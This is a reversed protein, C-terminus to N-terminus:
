ERKVKRGRRAVALVAFVAAAAVAGLAYLAVNGLVSAIPGLTAMAFGLTPDHIIDMGRAYAFTLSVVAEVEGATVEDPLRVSTVGVPKAVGDVDATGLWGFEATLNGARFSIQNASVNPGQPAEAKVRIEIGPLTDDETYPFDDFLLDLKIEVPDQPLGQFTTVNGFATARFGFAAGPFATFNYLATVQVGDIGGSTVNAVDISSLDFDGRDYEALLSDAPLFAGDADEDIFEIVRELRLNLSGEAEGEGVEESLDFDNEMNSAKLELRVRDHRAGEIRDSRLEFGDSFQEVELRREGESWDEGQALVAPAVLMAALAVAAVGIWKM